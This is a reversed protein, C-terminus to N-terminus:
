SDHGHGSAHSHGPQEPQVAVPTENLAQIFNVLHWVQQENLTSKWAPMAGRGERIKYAFDGDSHGGAMARLNTPRPKLMMGAMGKGDANVGHCSVCNKKFLSAGMRVSDATAPVPNQKSAEAAPAAWHANNDKMMGMDMAGNHHGGAHSGSAMVSASTSLLIAVSMVHLNKMKIM